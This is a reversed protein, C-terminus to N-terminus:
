VASRRVHANQVAVTGSAIRNGLGGAGSLARSVDPPPQKPGPRKGACLGDATPGHNISVTALFETVDSKTAMSATPVEGDAAPGGVVVHARRGGRGTSVDPVEHAACGRWRHERDEGAPEVTTAFFVDLTDTPAAVRCDRFLRFEARAFGKEVISSL